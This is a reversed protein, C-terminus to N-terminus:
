LIKDALQKIEIVEDLDHKKLSGDEDFLSSEDEEIIAKEAKNKAEDFGSALVFYSRYRKTKVEFLNM